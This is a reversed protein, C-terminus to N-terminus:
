VKFDALMSAVSSSSQEGSGDYGSDSQLTELLTAMLEELPDSGQQAGGPPPPPGGEARGGLEGSEFMEALQDAQEQDLTGSEVQDALMSEFNAQMEEKSPPGASFDPAGAEMREAHITDLADLMADQDESTIEGAEVQEDLKSVIQDRPSTPPSMAPMSGISMM